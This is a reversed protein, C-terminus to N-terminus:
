TFHINSLLIIVEVACYLLERIESNLKEIVQPNTENIFSFIEAFKRPTLKKFSADTAKKLVQRLKTMRPGEGTESAM